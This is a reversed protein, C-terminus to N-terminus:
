SNGKIVNCWWHAAQLNEATHGGDVTVAQIHDLTVSWPDPHQLTKDIETGCIGCMWDCAEYVAQPDVYDAQPDIHGAARARALYASRARAARSLSHRAPTWLSQPQVPSFVYAEWRYDNGHEDVDSILERAFWTEPDDLFATRHPLEFLDAGVGIVPLTLMSPRYDPGVAVLGWMDTGILDAVMVTDPSAMGTLYGAAAAHGHHEPELLAYSTILGHREVADGPKPWRGHEYPFEADM